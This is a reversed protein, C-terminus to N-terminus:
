LQAKVSALEAELEAIRQKSREWLSKYYGAQQRLELTERQVAKGAQEAADAQCLRRYEELTVRKPEFVQISVGLDNELHPVQVAKVGAADQCHRPAAEFSVRLPVFEPNSASEDKEM